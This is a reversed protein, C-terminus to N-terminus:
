KPAALLYNGPGELAASVTSPGTHTSNRGLLWHDTSREHWIGLAQLFAAASAYKSSQTYVSADGFTGFSVAAIPEGTENFVLSAPGVTFQYAGPTVTATVVVTCTDCLLTDNRSVVSHPAFSITAFVTHVSDSHRVVCQALANVKFTCLTGSPDGGPTLGLALLSARSV